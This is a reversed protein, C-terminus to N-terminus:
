VCLLNKQQGDRSRNIGFRSTRYGPRPLEPIKNTRRRDPLPAPKLDLLDLAKRIENERARLLGDTLGVNAPIWTPSGYYMGAIEFIPIYNKILTILHAQSRRWYHIGVRAREVAFEHWVEKRWASMQWQDRVAKNKSLRSERRYTRLEAADPLSPKAGMIIDRLGEGWSAIYKEGHEVLDDRNWLAGYLDKTGETFLVKYAGTWPDREVLSAAKEATREVGKALINSVSQRAVNAAAEAVSSPSATLTHWPIVPPPAGFSFNSAGM